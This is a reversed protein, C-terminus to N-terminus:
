PLDWGKLAWECKADIDANTNEFNIYVIFCFAFVFFSETGMRQM